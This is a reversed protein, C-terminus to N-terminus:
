GWASFGSPPATNFATAGVNLTTTVNTNFGVAFPFLAGLGAGYDRGGTGAAPNGTVYTGNVSAWFLHNPIDIALGVYNGTSYTTFGTASLGAGWRFAGGSNYIVGESATITTGTNIHTADVLGMSGTAGMDCHMELYLKGSSRGGTGLAGRNGSGAGNTLTLNGNSLTAGTTVNAPNWTSFAAAGSLLMQQISSM